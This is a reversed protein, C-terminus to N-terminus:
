ANVPKSGVVANVWFTAFALREVFAYSTTNTGIESDVDYTNLNCTCGETVDPYFTITRNSNIGNTGVSAMSDLYGNVEVGTASPTDNNQDHAYVGFANTDNGATMRARLEWHGSRLPEQVFVDDVWFTAFALREVFAVHVDFEIM